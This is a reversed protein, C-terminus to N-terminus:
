YNNIIPLFSLFNPIFIDFYHSNLISCIFVM